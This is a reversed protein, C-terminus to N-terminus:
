VLSPGEGPAGGGMPGGGALPVARVTFPAAWADEDQGDVVLRWSYRRGPELPIPGLNVALSVDLPSGEPLEMPRAVQFDGRVEVPRPGEPTEVEVEEGDAGQLFLEWHHPREIEAWDLELKLAIATPTPEPGIISWGGGLIYLKGEAVQASDCLLIM